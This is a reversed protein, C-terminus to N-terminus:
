GEWVRGFYQLPLFVGLSMRHPWLWGSVLVLCLHWLSLFSCALIVSSCLHLFGWCFVLVNFPDDLLVNFPDDVMILHPKRWSDLSEEIYAFWDIHYVMNVFQLLFVMYDDWYIRFLKQCFEVGMWSLVSWFTPM